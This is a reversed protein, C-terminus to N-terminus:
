ARRPRAPPISGELVEGAVDAVPRRASRAAFRIRDFAAVPDLGERGMVYGIAREIAARRHLASGLQEVLRGQHGALMAAGLRGELAENYIGLAAVDSEDWPHPQMSYANMTGVTEGGVTTPLGLVARIGEASLRGKLHPWRDDSLLDHTGVVSGRIFAEICPGEGAEEQSREMERAAEDTSAVYRLEGGTPDLLMLGLGTVGFVSSALSLLRRIDELPDDQPPSRKHSDLSARLADPDIHGTVREV